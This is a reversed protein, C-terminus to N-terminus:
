IGSEIDIDLVKFLPKIDEQHLDLDYELIFEYQEIGKDDLKM